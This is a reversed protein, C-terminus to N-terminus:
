GGSVGSCKHAARVDASRGPAAGSTAPVGMCKCLTASFAVLALPGQVQAFTAEPWSANVLFLGVVLVVLVSIYRKIKM